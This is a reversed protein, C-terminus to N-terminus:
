TLRAFTDKLKREYLNMREIGEKSLDSCFEKKSGSTCVAARHPQVKQEQFPHTKKQFM